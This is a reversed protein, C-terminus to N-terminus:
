FINRFFLDIVFTAYSGKPLAFSVVMKYKGKNLEDKETKLIKFKKPTVFLDRESGESSLEPMQQIIFDRQTIKEKRLLKGIIKEIEKDQSIKKFFKRSVFFGKSQKTDNFETGFGIIQIKINKPKLTLYEKVTENWLYSQFGHLYM